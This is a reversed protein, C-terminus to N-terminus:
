NRQGAAVWALVDRSVRWFIRTQVPFMFCLRSLLSQDLPSFASFRYGALYRLQTESFAALASFPRGIIVSPDISEERHNL